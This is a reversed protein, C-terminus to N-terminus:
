GRWVRRHRHAARSAKQCEHTLVVVLLCRGRAQQGRRCRAMGRSGTRLCSVRTTASRVRMPTSRAPVTASRASRRATGQSATRRSHSSHRCLLMEGEVNVEHVRRIDFDRIVGPHPDVPRKRLLWRANSQLNSRRRHHVLCLGRLMDPRHDGPDGIHDCETSPALCPGDEGKLMGWQCVPDRALVVIRM